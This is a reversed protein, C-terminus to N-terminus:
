GHAEEDETYPNKIVKAVKIGALVSLEVSWFTFWCKIFVDPFGENGTALLVIESIWFIIIASVSAFLVKNSTSRKKNKTKRM